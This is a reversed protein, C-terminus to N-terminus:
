AAREHLLILPRRHADQRSQGAFSRMVHEVRTPYDGHHVLELGAGALRLRFVRRAAAEQLRTALPLVVVNALVAGYLTTLVAVGLGPGIAAADQGVQPLMQALGLLTGILGFAPFLKGLTQLVQSAAEGDRTEREVEGLLLAHLDDPDDAELLHRGARQVPESDVEDLAREFGPTGELRQMRALRKVTAVLREVEADADEETSEALAARLRLWTEEIRRRSFTARAVALAGGVSILLSVPELLGRAFAIATAVGLAALALVPGAPRWGRSWDRLAM